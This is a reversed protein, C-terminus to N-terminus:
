RGRAALRQLSAKAERTLRAEAAGEALTRLVARAEATGIHELVEVARLDRLREPATAGIRVGELLEEIRKRLELTPKGELAERLATEAREGLQQLAEMAKQRVAFEESDLDALLRAVQKRDAPSPAPRLRAQLLPV